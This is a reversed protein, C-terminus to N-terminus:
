VKSMLKWCKLLRVQDSLSSILELHTIPNEIIKKENTRIEQIVDRPDIEKKQVVEPEVSGLVKGTEESSKSPKKVKKKEVVPAARRKM